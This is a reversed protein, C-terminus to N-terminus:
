FKSKLVVIGDPSIDINHRGTIHNTGRMKLVELYKRRAGGEEEASHTLLVLGDVAYAVDAPYLERPAVEGTFLTTAHWNKLRNVLDFLFARYDDGLRHALVTIPDVVIRQPLIDAIRRDIADLLADGDFNRLDPGLDVYAIERGFLEKRVFRFRSAFRLMWQTPESLTTFYVGQDGDAAGAFLFQQAFTTKGTGTGGAVLIVSPHPFGGEIMDDLGPVGTGKRVFDDDSM